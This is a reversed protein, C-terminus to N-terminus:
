SLSFTHRRSHRPGPEHVGAQTGVATDDAAGGAAGAVCEVREFERREGPLKLTDVTARWKLVCM